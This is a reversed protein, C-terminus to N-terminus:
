TNIFNDPFFGQDAAFSKDFGHMHGDCIDLFRCSSCYSPNVPYKDMRMASCVHIINKEMVELWHDSWKFSHAGPGKAHGANFYVKDKARYRNNGTINKIQELTYYTAENTMWDKRSQTTHGNLQDPSEVPTPKAYEFHDRLHYWTMTDPTKNVRNGNSFEGDRLAISYVAFQYSRMLTQQSPLRKSTKFDVLQISGDDMERVQDVIGKFTYKGIQVTFEQEAMIVNAYKNEEVQCYNHLMIAGDEIFKKKMAGKEEADKPWAVPVEYDRHEFEARRLSDTLIEKYFPANLEFLINPSPALTHPMWSDAGIDHLAELALHMMTGFILYTQRKQPKEGLVYEFKTALSCNSAYSNIISAHFEEIRKIM